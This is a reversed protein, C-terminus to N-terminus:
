ACPLELRLVTPGGPPSSLTLAGGHAPGTAEGEVHLLPQADRSRQETVRRHQQEVLRDVTEIGLADVPDAPQQAPEGSLSPRHEDGAVQHAFQLVGGVVEDDHGPAPEDGVDADGAQEGPRGAVPTTSRVM